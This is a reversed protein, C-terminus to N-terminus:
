SYLQGAIKAEHEDVLETVEDLDAPSINPNRACCSRLLMLRSAVFGRVWMLGLDTLERQSELVEESTFGERLLYAISVSCTELTETLFEREYAKM